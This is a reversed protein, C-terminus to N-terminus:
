HEDWGINKLAFQKDLYAMLDVAGMPKAFMYGQVTNCGIDKLFQLQESTEVGEAIVDMGFNEAWTCVSTTIAKDGNSHPLEQIFSRDIKITDIPLNKLYNLSSYGTGFDDLFIKFGLSKLINLKESVVAIDHLFITETVELSICSTILGSKEVLAILRECFDDLVFHLASINISVYLPSHYRQNLKAIFAFTEVLLNETANIILKSSELTAMFANPYVIQGGKQWRMLAEVGVVTNDMSDMVPQYHMFFERHFVAEKLSQELLVAEQVQLALQQTFIEYTGRGRAKARYMAIDSNRLLDPVTMADDPYFTVGVSTSTHILQDKVTFPQVLVDIIIEVQQIVAEYSDIDELIILFEDGGLRSVTDSEHCVSSLRRAVSCLLIDGAEHGLVDNVQKFKDLDLFLVAIKSQKFKANDIAHELRDYGLSRNALGTLPDYHAQQYLVKEHQKRESIDHQIAAFNIINREDDLIPIIIVFSPFLSGDRKATWIEGKWSEKALIQKHIAQYFPANHESTQMVQYTQGIIDAPLYGTLQTFAENVHSIMGKIDTIVIAETNNSFISAYTKLQQEQALKEQLQQEIQHNLGILQQTREEIRSELLESYQKEKQVYHQLDSAMDNFSVALMGIEDESDIPIRYDFHNQAYQNAGAILKQIRQRLVNSIWVAISIMLVIMLVTATTLQSILSDTENKTRQETNGVIESVRALQETLLVDLNDRTQLAAKHFEETNAGLTVFGFGRPTDGYKGTYYPIAAATTLKWINSWHIIFSGLGGNETLQMWGTCQPAFNLYRCDLGVHGQKVGELSPKKNLSQADFTPYTALFQHIDTSGSQKFAEEVESSLWPIMRLGTQPDFGSISYDRAHSISRGQYDWMFAYNGASADSSELPSYGLPDFTDTFEMIHRHDLALSVYGIKEAASFVPTIFRVIGEFRKGKPNEKGAYGHQEPAFEIGLKDAKEKSFTGIIKSPIYAGIVDSVYIDGQKLAQIESFYHEAKIYTNKADSINLKHPNISSVKVQEQGTLDFFVIEKYIPILKQAHKIPDIRHFERANDLLSAQKLEQEVDQAVDRRWENSTEDFSYFSSEDAMVARHKNAMFTRFTAESQPFSALLLLDEDRQYLFDAVSRAIQGGLREMSEQSKRDLSLISDAVAIEGTSAVVKEATKELQRTNETFFDYLSYIGLLTILALIILPIVKIATFLIILKARINLNSLFQKIAM